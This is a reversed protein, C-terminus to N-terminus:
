RGDVDTAEDPTGAEAPQELRPPRVLLEHVDLHGVRQERCVIELLHRGPGLWRSGLDARVRRPTPRWADRPAGLRQGDLLLEVLMGDPGPTWDLEIRAMGGRDVGFELLWRDGRGRLDLRPGGGAPAGSRTWAGQDLAVVRRAQVLAEDEVASRAWPLLALALSLLWAALM